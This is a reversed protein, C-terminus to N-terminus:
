QPCNKPCLGTHEGGPIFVECEGNEIFMDHSAGRVDVDNRIEKYNHTPVFIISMQGKGNAIPYITRGPFDRTPTPEPRYFYIRFGDIASRGNLLKKASYKKILAKIDELRIMCSTTENKDLGQRYSKVLMTLETKDINKRM